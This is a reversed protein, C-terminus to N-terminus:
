INFPEESKFFKWASDVLWCYQGIYVTVRCSSFFDNWRRKLRWAEKEAGKWKCCLISESSDLRPGEIVWYKKWPLETCKLFLPFSFAYWWWSILQRDIYKSWSLKKGCFESINFIGEPSAWLWFISAASVSQLWNEWIGLSFGGRIWALLMHSALLSPFSRRALKTKSLQLSELSSLPRIFYRGDPSIPKHGQFHM